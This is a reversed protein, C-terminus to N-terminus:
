VRSLIVFISMKFRTKLLNRVRKRFLGGFFIDSGPFWKLGIWIGSQFNIIDHSKRDETLISPLFSKLKVSYKEM